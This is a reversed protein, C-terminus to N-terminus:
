QLHVGGSRDVGPEVALRDLQVWRQPELDLRPRQPDPHRLRDGPRALTLRVALGDTEVETLYRLMPQGLESTPTLFRRYRSEDSLRDFGARILDKDAPEVPRVLVMTEDRLM